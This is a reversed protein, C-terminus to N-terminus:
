QKWINVLQVQLLAALAQVPAGTPHLIGLLTVTNARSLLVLSIKWGSTWEASPQQVLLWSRWAPRGRPHSPRAQPSFNCCSLGPGQRSGPALCPRGAGAPASLARPPPSLDCLGGDWGRHAPSGLLLEGAPTPTLPCCGTLMEVTWRAGSDSQQQSGACSPSWVRWRSCLGGEAPQSSEQLSFRM